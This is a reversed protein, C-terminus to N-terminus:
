GTVPDYRVDRVRMLRGREAFLSIAVGAGGLLLALTAIAADGLHLWHVALQLLAAAALATLLPAMLLRACEKSTCGIIPLALIAVRPIYFLM